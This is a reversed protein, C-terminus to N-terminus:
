FVRGPDVDVVRLKRCAKDCVVGYRPPTKCEAPRWSWRGAVSVTLAAGGGEPVERELVGVAIETMSVADGRAESTESGIRRNSLWVCLEAESRGRLRSTSGAYPAADFRQQSTAPPEPEALAVNM